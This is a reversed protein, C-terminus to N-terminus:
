IIHFCIELKLHIPSITRFINSEMSNDMAYMKSLEIAAMNNIVSPGFDFIRNELYYSFCIELKFSNPSDTKSIDCECAYIVKLLVYIDFTKHRGHM